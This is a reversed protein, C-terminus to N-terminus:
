RSPMSVTQRLWVTETAVLGEDIEIIRYGFSSGDMELAESRAKLQISVSPTVYQEVLGASVRYDHHYHGCFWRVRAGSSALISRVEDRNRLPFARDMFTAGCDLVPHHCFVLGSERGELYRRLAVLQAADISHRSSDLVLAPIGELTTEYTMTKGLRRSSLAGGRDFWSQRDHNGLAYLVSMGRRSIEAEVARYADESDGLDGTVVARSLGRAVADDLVASLRARSDVKYHRSLEDELHIDTLHALRLM